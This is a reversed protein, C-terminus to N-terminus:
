EAATRSAAPAAPDRSVRHGDVDYAPPAGDDTSGSQATADAEADAAMRELDGALRQRLSQVVPDATVEALRRYNEALRRLGQPDAMITREECLSVPIRAGCAGRPM